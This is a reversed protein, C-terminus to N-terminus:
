NKHLVQGGIMKAPIPYERKSKEEMRWGVDIQISKQLQRRVVSSQRNKDTM